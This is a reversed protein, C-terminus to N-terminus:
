GQILKELITKVMGVTDDLTVTADIEKYEDLVLLEMHIAVGKRQVLNQLSSKFEAKQIM